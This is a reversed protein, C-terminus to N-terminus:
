PAASLPRLCCSACCRCCFRVLCRELVRVCRLEQRRASIAVGGECLLEPLLVMVFCVGGEGKAFFVVLLMEELIEQLMEQLMKERLVKPRRHKIM